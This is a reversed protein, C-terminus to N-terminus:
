GINGRNVNKYKERFGEQTTFVLKYKKRGSEIEMHFNDFKECLLEYAEQMLANPYDKMAVVFENTSDDKYIYGGQEFLRAGIKQMNLNSIYESIRQQMIDKELSDYSEIRKTLITEIGEKFMQLVHKRSVLVHDQVQAMITMKRTDLVSEPNDNNSSGNKGNEIIKELKKKEDTLREQDNEAKKVLKNYDRKSIREEDFLTAYENIDEELRPLKKGIAEVRKSMKELEVETPPTVMVETIAGGCFKESGWKKREKFHNEIDQKGYLFDAIDYKDCEEGPKGFVLIGIRRGSEENRIVVTRVKHGDEDIIMEGGEAISGIVKKSISGDPEKKDVIEYPEFLSNEVAELSKLMAPTDKAWIVVSTGLEETTKILENYNYAGKDVGVLKVAKGTLKNIKEITPKIKKAFSQGGNVLKFTIPNKTKACVVWYGGIAKVAKAKTGHKDKVINESTFIETVHKDMYVREGDIAEAKSYGKTTGDVFEEIISSQGENVQEKDKEVIKDMYEHNSSKKPYDGGCAIKFEGEILEDVHSLREKGSAISLFNTIYRVENTYKDSEKSVDLVKSADICGLPKALHLLMLQGAYRSFEGQVENEAPPFFRMETHVEEIVM